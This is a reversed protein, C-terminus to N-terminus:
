APQEVWRLRGGVATGLVAIDAIDSVKVTLPDAALFTLDARYGPAIRGLDHDRRAVWAAAGTFAALGEAVSTREDPALVQGGSTTRDAMTQIARLPSGPLPRDTSGVLRIGHDLLSRGRYLWPTRAPGLLEAYGDGFAHVFSPQSVVAVGLGAIRPLHDDRIAGGHEIRHRADPRALRGQAEEIADLALDMAADGIAHVAVQWGALHADVIAARMEAPDQRWSGPHDFGVFPETMRATGVSMGGDLVVKMASLALTHSGFGTRLGLDLGRTFPASPPALVRHLADISPMLQMRVPLRGQLDLDLFSAADIASLSGVQGGAGADICLTVGQDAAREAAVSITEALEEVGYPLRQDRVLDQDLEELLGDAHGAARDGAAELVATSVVSAHCSLHRVWVRRGGGARHLEDATLHRGFRRHDYGGVEVWSDAGRPAAAASIVKLASEPSPCDEISVSQMAQGSLQLHTHADIFGPLVCGGSLDITEAAQWGECQEDLAVVRGHLVGIRTGAPRRPDMTRVSANQLLLDLTPKM